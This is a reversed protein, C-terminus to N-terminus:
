PKKGILTVRDSTIAIGRQNNEFEQAAKQIMQQIAPGEALRLSMEEMAIM